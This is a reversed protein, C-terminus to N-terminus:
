NCKAKEWSLLLSEKTLIVALDKRYDASVKFDSIFKLSGGVKEAASNILNESLVQSKLINEAEKIRLPITFGGLAIKVEKCISNDLKILTALNIIALDLATRKFKIFNAGASTCPIIIEIVIEGTKLAKKDLLYDELSIIKDEPFIKLKADLVLLACALDIWSGRTVLAGGITAMNRLQLAACGLASISIIGGLFQCIIPSDVLEQLAAGSGIKLFNKELQIYNLNLGSLDILNQIKLNKLGNLYTGGAIYYSEENEQFILSAEKLNKPYFYNKIKM